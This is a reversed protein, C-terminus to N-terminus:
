IIQKSYLSSSPFSFPTWVYLVIKKWLIKIALYTNLKSKM